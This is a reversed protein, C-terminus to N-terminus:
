KQAAIWHPKIWFHLHNKLVIQKRFGIKDLTKLLATRSMGIEHTNSLKAARYSIFTHLLNPERCIIFWGGPKLSRYVASFTKQWDYAHHLAEFIFIADVLPEGQQQLAVDISEMAAQFGTLSNSFGKAELSKARQHIQAVSSPGITTAIARFNMTALFESMWGSGAGLELVTQSPKIGCVNLADCLELFYKLYRENDFWFPKRLDSELAEEPSVGPLAFFFNEEAEYAAAQDQFTPPFIGAAYDKLIIYSGLYLKQFKNLHLWYDKENAQWLQEAQNYFPLQSIIRAFDCFSDM